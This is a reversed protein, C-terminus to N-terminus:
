AVGWGHGGCMTCTEGDNEGTGFCVPCEFKLSQLRWDGHQKIFVAKELFGGSHYFEISVKAEVMSIDKVESVRDITNSIFDIADFDDALLPMLQSRYDQPESGDTKPWIRVIQELLALCDDKYENNSKQQTPM